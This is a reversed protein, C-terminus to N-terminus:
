SVNKGAQLEVDHCPCGTGWTSLSNLIKAIWSVFGFRAHWLHSRLAGTVTALHSRDRGNSFQAPDFHERLGQHLPELAECVASLTNWRWEAISCLQTSELLDGLASAGRERLQRVVADRHLQIRFWSVISKLESLWKPVFPASSLSTKLLGDIIHKWGPSVWACPFLESDDEDARPLRVGPWAHLFLDRAVNRMDCMFRETGQDTTLSRVARACRRFDSYTPGGVLWLQWCLAATKGMSNLLTRSLYALPMIRREYTDNVRLDFSSVCIEAGRWRPSADSYLYLSVDSEAAFTQRFVHRWLLM